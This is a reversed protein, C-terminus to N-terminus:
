QFATHTCETSSRYSKERCFPRPPPNKCRFFNCVNLHMFLHLSPHPDVTKKKYRKKPYPINYMRYIIFLEPSQVLFFINKKNKSSSFGSRTSNVIKANWNWKTKRTSNRITPCIPTTLTKTTTTTTKTTARGTIRRRRIRKWLWLHRSYPTAREADKIPLWRRLFPRLLSFILFSPFM